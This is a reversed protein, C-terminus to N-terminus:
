VKRRLNKDIYKTRTNTSSVWTDFGDEDINISVSEKREITTILRELLKDTETNNNIFVMGGMDPTHINYNHILRNLVDPSIDRNFIAKIASNYDRNIDKPIVAEGPTLYAPVTDSDGVGPVNLTGKNFRYPNPQAAILGVQVATLAGVTAAAAIGLGVGVVPIAALSSFAQIAALSGAITTQIIQAAKNIDFQTAQMELKKKEAEENQKQKEKILKEEASLEQKRAKDKDKKKRKEEEIQKDVNEKEAQPVTERLFELESVREDALKNNIQRMTEARAEEEERLRKTAEAQEELKEIEKNRAEIERDIGAIAAEFYANTADTLAQTASTAIQLGATARATFKMRKLNAREENSLNPDAEAEKIDALRKKTAGVTQIGSVVTNVVGGMLTGVGAGTGTTANSAQAILLDSFAKASDLSEDQFEKQLRIRLDYRAKEEDEIANNTQKVLDIEKQAYRKNIELKQEPTLNNTELERKRAAENLELLKKVKEQELKAIRIAAVEASVENKKNYFEQLKILEDYHSTYDAELAALTAQTDALDEDRLTDSQEKYAKEADVIANKRNIFLGLIESQHDREEQENRVRWKKPNEFILDTALNEIDKAHEIELNTRAIAAQEAKIFGKKEAIDIQNQRYTLTDRLLAKAEEDARKREDKAEKADKGPEIPQLAAGGGTIGSGALVNVDETQSPPRVMKFVDFPSGFTNKTDVEPTITFKGNFETDDWISKVSGYNKKAQEAFANLGKSINGSLIDMTATVSTAISEFTSTVVAGFIRIAMWWGKISNIVLKDLTGWEEKILGIDSAWKLIANSINRIWIYLDYAANVMKIFGNWLGELVVKANNWLNTFGLKILEWIRKFSETTGMIENLKAKLNNVFSDWAKRVAQYIPLLGLLVDYFKLRIEGWLEKITLKMNGFVKSYETGAILRKKAVEEEIQMTRKTEERLERQNKTAERLMNMREALEEGAGGFLKADLASTDKGAKIMKERIDLYKEMGVSLGTTGSQISEFLSVLEKDNALLNKTEDDINKASLGFEHVADMLKDQFVGFNVSSIAVNVTEAFSFGAKKFHTGFENLQEIAEDAQEPTLQEYIRAINNKVSEASGGFVNLASNMANRISKIDVEFTNALANSKQELIRIDNENGKVLTGFANSADKMEKKVTEGFSFLAASAAGIAAAGIIFLGQPGVLFKLNSALDKMTGGTSAFQESLFKSVGGANRMATTLKTFDEIGEKIGTIGFKDLLLNESEKKEKELADMKAKHAKEELAIEKEIEKEIQRMRKEELAMEARIEKLRQNHAKTAEREATKIAREQEKAVRQIAKEQEKQAKEIQRASDLSQKNLQKFIDAQANAQKNTKDIADGVSEASKSTQKFAADSAKSSDSIKDIDSVIKNLKKSASDLETSEIDFILKITQPM